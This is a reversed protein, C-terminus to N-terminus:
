RKMPSSNEVALCVGAGNEQMTLYLERLRCM